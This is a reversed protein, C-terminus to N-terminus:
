TVPSVKLGFPNSSVTVYVSLVEATIPYLAGPTVNVGDVVVLNVSSSLTIVMVKLM